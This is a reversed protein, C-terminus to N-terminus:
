FASYGRLAYDIAQIIVLSAMVVVIGIISNFMNQKATKAMDENGSSIIYQIGSIVFGILAVVGVIGLLWRLLSTLLNKISIDSLGTEAGTPIHVGEAPTVQTSGPLSNPNNVQSSGPLSNPNVTSTPQLFNYLDADTPALPGVTPNTKDEFPDQATPMDAPQSLTNWDEGTPVPAALPGVTPTPTETLSDIFDSDAAGVTLISSALLFLNSAM